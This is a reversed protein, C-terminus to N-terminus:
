PCDNFVHAIFGMGCKNCSSMDGPQDPWEHENPHCRPPKKKQEARKIALRMNFLKQQRGFFYIEKGKRPKMDGVVRRLRLYRRFGIRHKLTHKLPRGSRSQRGTKRQAYRTTRTSLIMSM